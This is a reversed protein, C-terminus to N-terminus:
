SAPPARGAVAEAWLLRRPRPPRHAPRNPRRAGVSVAPRLSSLMGRVGDTFRMWLLSSGAGFLAHLLAGLLVLAPPAPALGLVAHEVVDAALFAVTSLGIARHVTVQRSPPSWSRPTRGLGAALALAVLSVAAIGGTAVASPYGHTHWGTPTLSGHESHAALWITVVHALLWGVAGVAVATGASFLHVPDKARAESVQRM